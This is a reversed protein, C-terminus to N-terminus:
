LVELSGGRGLLLLFSSGAFRGGFLLGLALLLFLFTSLVLITSSGLVVFAALLLTACSSRLSVRKSTERILEFGEGLTVNPDALNDLAFGM